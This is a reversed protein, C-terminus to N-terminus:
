TGFGFPPTPEEPPEEPWEPEPIDALMVSEVDKKSILNEIGNLVFLWCDGNPGYKDAPILQTRGNRYTVRYLQAVRRRHAHRHREAKIAKRTVWMM